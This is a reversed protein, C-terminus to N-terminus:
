LEIALKLFLTPFQGNPEYSALSIAAYYNLNGDSSTRMVNAVTTPDQQAVIMETRGYESTGLASPVNSCRCLSETNYMFARVASWGTTHKVEECFTTMSYDIKDEYLNVETWNKELRAILYSVVDDAIFDKLAFLFNNLTEWSQDIYETESYQLTQVPLSTPFIGVASKKFFCNTYVIPTTTITTPAM